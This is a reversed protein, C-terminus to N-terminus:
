DFIEGELASRAALIYKATDLPDVGLRPCTAGLSLDCERYSHLSASISGRGGTASAFDSAYNLSEAVPVLATISMSDDESLTETVEGRMLRVDSMVRGAGAPPVIFQFEYIPELLVSGGRKLGDQVAMPTAVIFDLPHTHILHHNGGILTIEV